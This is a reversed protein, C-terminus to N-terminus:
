KMERVVQANRETKKSFTFMTSIDPLSDFIDDIDEDDLEFTNEDSNKKAVAVDKLARMEQPSAKPINEGINDLQIPTTEYTIHELKKDILAIENEEKQIKIGDKLVLALDAMDMTAKVDENVSNISDYVDNINSNINDDVRSFRDNIDDIKSNFDDAFSSLDGEVSSSNSGSDNKIDDYSEQKSFGQELFAEKYAIDIESQLKNFEIKSHEVKLSADNNSLLIKNQTELQKAILLSAGASDKLIDALTTGTFEKSYEKVNEVKPIDSHVIRPAPDSIDAYKGLKLEKMKEDYSDLTADVFYQLTGLALGVFPVKKLFKVAPSKHVFKNIKYIKDMTTPQKIRTKPSTKNEGYNQNNSSQQKKTFDDEFQSVASM